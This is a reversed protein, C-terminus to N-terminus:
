IKGHRRRFLWLLALAGYFWGSPAGGGGSRTPTSPITSTTSGGGPPTDPVTHTTAPPTPVIPTAASQSLVLTTVGGSPTIKRIVANGADTVYVNGAADLSLNEPQNFWANTGNGDLLGAISALGALTSVTGGSKVVRIVSNGTDAVYLSGSVDIALGTPQNFLAAAGTGDEYGGVGTVGAITTVVGAPTVKRITNNGTDAVYLNNASDLVIGAPQNFIALAGTGDQSGKTGNGAITSTVGSPTIKRIASNATDAVYVNGSVDVVLAQPSNFVAATGTADTYGQTTASGALTTVVGAPTIKRILSNGTDAVYLNEATDLAVARPQRFLAVAYSGNTSGQQGSTGALLSVVGAPTVFHVTNNSNDGVFLNGASDVAVGFPSPFPAVVTLTLNTSIASGAANTAVLRYNYGNMTGSVGSVTLTSTSTGSNNSNNTLNTWTGGSNTSVQWQYSASPTGSATASFSVTQGSAVTQSQPETTITPAVDVSVVMANSTVSGASNTVVVNYSGANASQLALIVYNATTAGSIKSGDKYWQYIVPLNSEVTVSLTRQAGASAKLQMGQYTVRRAVASAAASAQDVVSTRLPVVDVVVTDGTVTGASNTIIVDYNGGDTSRSFPLFYTSLRAATGAIPVGNKRWQYDLPGSGGASSNLNLADGAILSQPQTIVVPLTGAGPLQIFLSHITGASAAIAGSAVQVPISRSSLTGDGLQGSSNYGMAWLTGDTKVFLSHNSGAAAAAVGSAVQVPLLRYQTTGDGLQGAGNGGTAWLTGDTKVFLSHSGGAIVSAVGSLAQVPSSCIAQPVTGLAGGTNNGMGWLTGDTKLFLSVSSGAAVAAVGSAVQVPSSRTTTTGDGLQGSSNNGMAWLTGDLKLFLSHNAGAAAVSTVGSAVQVPSSRNTTTGDGLQGYKNWGMAWLTGDTKLYLSHNIGAAVAAVGSAVQVPISRSSLTGDGLQGSSNMGMAWLTGDVKLLLSHSSGAAAAAVNNAALVPSSLSSTSRDGLQGYLNQGMAWLTGDTKLFLSHANGGAVATVGSTILVPSSRDTTTGDGLQGYANWGMAWLTGDTKVFESHCSGATVVLVGSAVQIPSSQNTNTGDGLQGYKNWGMAWLTGDTKLFLSHNALSTTAMAAVGSAVQVPSSRDTTTGDGLQGYTNQGMAWLTGDTKLFLSHM